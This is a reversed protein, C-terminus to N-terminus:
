RSIVSDFISALKQTNSKRDFHIWGGNNQPRPWGLQDLKLIIEAIGKSDDPSAIWQHHGAQNLINACIGRSEICAIIPRRVMLYEFVKGTVSSIDGSRIFLLSADASLLYSLALEHSVYGLFKIVNALEMEYVQNIAKAYYQGVFLVETEKLIDDPLTKLARMFHILNQEHHKYLSGMYVVRRKAGIKEKPVIGKIDDRDFGNPLVHIHNTLWPYKKLFCNSLYDGYVTVANANGVTLRELYNNGRRHLNTPCIFYPDDTWGDPFDLLYPIGTKKSLLYAIIAASFRHASAYIVKIDYKRITKLGRYYAFPIWGVQSDPFALYDRFLSRYIKVIRSGETFFRHKVPGAEASEKKRYGKMLLASLRLPDLSGTRIVRAVSPIESLLSEDYVYYSIMKVTVIFPVWGFTPLYKINKLNRQIGSGGIPPFNYTLYLVKNSGISLEKEKKIARESNIREIDELDVSIKPMGIISVTFLLGV